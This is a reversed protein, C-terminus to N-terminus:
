EIVPHICKGSVADQFMMWYGDGSLDFVSLPIFSCYGKLEKPPDPSYTAPVGYCLYKEVGEEKILGVVYFKDKSYRIKVFVSNPLTQELSKEHPFRSFVSELEKRVSLYYPRDELGSRLKEGDTFATEDQASDSNKGGENAKKQDRDFPLEDQFEANDYGNEEDKIIKDDYSFYNETALVEDDYPKNDCTPVDNEM